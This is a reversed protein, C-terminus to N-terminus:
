GGVSDRDSWAMVISGDRAMRQILEVIDEAVRMVDSKRMAGLNRREDILRLRRGASVNALIREGREPSLGKIFVALDLDSIRELLRQLHRDSLRDIDDASYLLSRLREVLDSPQDAFGTLIRESSGLDMHKLIQALRDPGDVLEDDAGSDPLSDLKDRLRIEVKAVVSADIAQMAGVRRLVQAQQEPPLVAVLRAAAPRSLLSLLLGLVPTSEGSLLVRLQTADLDDLFAFRAPRADPLAAYLRREGAEVGFARVLIERATTPGSHVAHAGPRAGFRAMVRAADRTNIPGIRAMVATVRDVEARDLKTLIRAAEERGVLSLFAAVDHVSGTDRPAQDPAARTLDDPAPADISQRRERSAVKVLGAARKYADIRRKSVREHHM